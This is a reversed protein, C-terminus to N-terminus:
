ILQVRCYPAEWTTSATFFGALALSTFLCPNLGETPFIGQLLEHFGVETNKGPSNEHISSGPLSCNMPSCLSYSVVSAVQCGCVWCYVNYPSHMHLMCLFVNQQPSAFSSFYFLFLQVKNQYWAIKIGPEERWPIRWALTSSHTAM